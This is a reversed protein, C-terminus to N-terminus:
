RIQIGQVTYEKGDRVIILQGNRLIKQSRVESDQISEIGTVTQGIKMIPRKALARAPVDGTLLWYARMGGLTGTNAWNLTNNAQLFIFSKASIQASSVDVPALTGYCTAHTGAEYSASATINSLDVDTFSPNNVNNAPWILYPVGAEIYDQSDYFNLSLEDTEEDYSTGAFSYIKTGSGFTSTVLSADM